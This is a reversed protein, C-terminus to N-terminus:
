LHIQFFIHYINTNNQSLPFANFPQRAHLGDLRGGVILWKNEHQAHAFSHIGPMNNIVIADLSITYPFSEQALVILNLSIALLLTLIPKM